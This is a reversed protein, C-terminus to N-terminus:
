PDDPGEFDVIVGLATKESGLAHAFPAYPTRLRLRSLASITVEHGGHESLSSPLSGQHDANTVISGPQDQIKDVDPKSLDAM